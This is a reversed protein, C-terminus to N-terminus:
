TPMSGSVNDYAEVHDTQEIEGGKTAKVGMGILLMLAQVAFMGAAFLLHVPQAARPVNLYAMMMGAGIEAVLLGGLLVAFAKGGYGSGHRMTFTFLRYCIWGNVALLLLSFSRHIKFIDTLRDIWLERQEGGLSKAIEDIQERVQTGMVVQAVTLLLALTIWGRLSRLVEQTAPHFKSHTRYVIGLSLALIMLATLMHLTIKVPQLDTAVVVSGLWGVFGTMVLMGFCLMVTFKDYRWRPLSSVLQVLVFVGLVAGLLRNVYEVWTKFPEFDAIERGKVAFRTKYDAPLESIHTPPIYRGFCKPWDPCGMGSGTTRVVGGALIVLLVTALTIPVITRFVAVFKM